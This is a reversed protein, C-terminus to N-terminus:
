VLDIDSIGGSRIGKSSGALGEREGATAQSNAPYLIIFGM